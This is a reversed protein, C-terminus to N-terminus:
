RSRTPRVSSRSQHWLTFREENLAAVIDIANQRNREHQLERDPSSKYVVFAPGIRGAAQDLTQEAMSFAEAADVKHNHLSIAGAVLEVWVPCRPTEILENRIAAVFREGATM